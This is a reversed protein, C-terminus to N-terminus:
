LQIFYLIGLFVMIVTPILCGIDEKKTTKIDLPDPEIWSKIIGIIYMTGFLIVLGWFLPFDFLSFDTDTYEGYSYDENWGSTPNAIIRSAFFGLFISIRKM